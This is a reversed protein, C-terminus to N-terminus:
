LAFQLAREEGDTKQSPMFQQQEILWEITEVESLGSIDHRQELLLRGGASRQEKRYMLEDVGRSDTMSHNQQARARDYALARKFLQLRFRSQAFAPELLHEKREGLSKSSAAFSNRSSSAERAYQSRSNIIPGSTPCPKM